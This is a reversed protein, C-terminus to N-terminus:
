YTRAILYPPIILRSVTQVVAQAGMYREPSLAKIKYARLGLLAFRNPALLAGGTALGELLASPAPPLHAVITQM